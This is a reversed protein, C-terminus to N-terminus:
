LLAIFLGGQVTRNQFGWQKATLCDYWDTLPVRDATEDWARWLAHIMDKELAPDAGRVLRGAWLLWDSKTYDSRNDLPVGYGLLNDRYAVAEGARVTDPFLGFGLLEDWVMNYKLSFGEDRDFTLRTTGDPKTARAVWSKAMGRAREMADTPCDWVKQCLLAYAAVGLIAKVSLNCNHALHGAFDDTCLQNGPDEGNELLFGVWTEFLGQYPQLFAPDAGYHVAAAAMLLMNGCEEVPMQYEMKNEGYVQGNLLPYQGVDHPAFDYPWDGGTAYKIVPRMLGWILDPNDRCLMPIAPYSVDVTAACGNSFNEKSVFLLEGEADAALKHAGMVQRVALRLIDCLAEGGEDTAQKVLDADYEALKAFVAGRDQWSECLLSEMGLGDRNWWPRCHHGFYELCVGDDYALMVQVAEGEALPVELTLRGRQDQSDACVEAGAEGTALWLHGWDCRLDDGSRNVPVQEVAGLRAATMGPVQLAQALTPKQGPKDLVLSDDATIRMKGWAGRLTATLFSVPRAALEIDTPLLPSTFVVDLMVDPRKPLCFCFTTSSSDYRQATLQWKRERTYGLFGYSVGEIEVHGRLAMEAGTWHCLEDAAPHDHRCWLSFYPDHVVIPLSPARM